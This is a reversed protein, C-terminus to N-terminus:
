GLTADGKIRRLILARQHAALALGSIPREAAPRGATSCNM